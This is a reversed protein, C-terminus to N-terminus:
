RIVAGIVLALAVIIAIAAMALIVKRWNPEGPPPRQSFRPDEIWSIWGMFRSYGQEQRAGRGHGRSPVHAGQEVPPVTPGDGSVKSLSRSV